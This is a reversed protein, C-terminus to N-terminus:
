EPINHPKRCKPTCLICLHWAVINVPHPFLLLCFVPLVHIANPTKISREAWCSSIGLEHSCFLMISLSIQCHHARNINRTGLLVEFVAPTLVGWDTRSM